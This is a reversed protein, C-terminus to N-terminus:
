YIFNLSKPLLTFTMAGDGYTEGDLECYLTKEKELPTVKVSTSRHSEVTKPSFFNQRLYMAPLISSFFKFVNTNKLIQIDFIEDDLQADPAPCMGNGFFRGNAVVLNTLKEIIFPKQNKLEIKSKICRHSKYGNYVGTLYRYLPSLHRPSTNVARMVSAVLGANAINIFYKTSFKKNDFEVMGIDIARSKGHTINKWAKKYDRSIQLTRIFDGGSGFPLTSLQAKPQINKGKDFFGNVIENLTGDGGMSVIHKYGQKLANQTLSKADGAKQTFAFDFAPLHQLLFPYVKADWNKQLFKRGSIPNGILFIKKQSVAM